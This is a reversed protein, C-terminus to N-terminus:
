FKIMKNLEKNIGEIEEDDIGEKEIENQYKKMQFSLKRLHIISYLNNLLCLIFFIGLILYIYIEEQNDKKLEILEIVNLFSILSLIIIFWLNSFFNKIQYIYIRHLVKYQEQERKNM